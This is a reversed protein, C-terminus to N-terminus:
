LISLILLILINVYTVTVSLWYIIITLFLQLTDLQLLHM